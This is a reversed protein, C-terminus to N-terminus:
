IEDAMEELANLLASAAQHRLRAIHAPKWYGDGMGSRTAAAAATDRAQDFRAKAYAADTQHAVAAAATRLSGLLLTKDTKDTGGNLTKM